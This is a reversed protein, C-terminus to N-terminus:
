YKSFFAGLRMAPLRPGTVLYNSLSAPKTTGDMKKDIAISFEDPQPIPESETPPATQRIEGSPPSSSIM